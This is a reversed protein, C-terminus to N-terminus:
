GSRGLDRWPSRGGLLVCMEMRTERGAPKLQLGLAPDWNPGLMADGARTADRERKSRVHHNGGRVCTETQPHDRSPIISLRAPFFFFGYIM